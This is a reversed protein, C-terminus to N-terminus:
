DGAPPRLITILLVSDAEAQLAFPTGPALYTLENALLAPQAAPVDQGASVSAPPPTDVAPAGPTGTTGLSSDQVLLVAVAGSLCHLIIPGAVQHRPVGQGRQLVRRIVEVEAIKFLAVSQDDQAGSPLRALDIIEGPVAHHLAM